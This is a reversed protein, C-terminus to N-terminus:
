AARFVKLSISSKPFALSSQNLVKKDRGWPIGECSV